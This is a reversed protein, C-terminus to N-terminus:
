RQCRPCFFTSRGAQVIRKITGECGRRPCPEGAREYVRFRSAPKDIARTLVKVIAAALREAAATPVGTRSALIAAKRRPSIGAVHLAESAYINGLGAVVRQDLLAVKIPVKKRHVARALVEADFDASLPEPGLQALVPHNELAGREILDMLGFRRPDNFVITVQGRTRLASGQSKDSMVFVVHDHKGQDSALSSEVRFDGSMGLHVLLTEGSSLTALLYKARRTLATVEHGVLRDGFGTPFPIRLPSARGPCRRSSCGACWNSKPCSLCADSRIPLPEPPGVQAPRV